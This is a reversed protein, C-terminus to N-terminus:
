DVTGEAHDPLHTICYDTIFGKKVNVPITSYRINDCGPEECYMNKISATLEKIIDKYESAEFMLKTCLLALIVSVAGLIISLVIM